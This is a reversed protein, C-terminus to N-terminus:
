ELISSAMNILNEYFEYIYKGIYHIKQLRNPELESYCQLSEKIFSFSESLNQRVSPINKIREFFKLANQMFLKLDETEKLNELKFNNIINIVGEQIIQCISNIVIKYKELSEMNNLFELIQNHFICNDVVYSGDSGFEGDCYKNILIIIAEDLSTSDKVLNRNQVFSLNLNNLINTIKYLDYSEKLEFFIKQMNRLTVLEFKFSFNEETTTNITKIFNSFSRINENETPNFKSQQQIIFMLESFSKELLIFIAKEKSNLIFSKFEHIKKLLDDKRECNVILKPSCNQFLTEIKLVSILYEVNKQALSENILFLWDDFDSQDISQGNKANLILANIQKRLIENKFHDQDFEILFNLNEQSLEVAIPNNEAIINFIEWVIETFNKIEEPIRTINEQFIKFYCTHFHLYSTPLVVESKNDSLSRITM